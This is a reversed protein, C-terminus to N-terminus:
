TVGEGGKGSGRKRGLILLAFLRISSKTQSLLLRILRSRLRITRSIKHWFVPVFSLIFFLLLLLSNFEEAKRAEKMELSLEASFLGGCVSMYM